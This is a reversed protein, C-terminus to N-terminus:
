STINIKKTQSDVTERRPINLRLVGDKMNAQIEDTNSDDPLSLTRRFSGYSREIRYFHRDKDEKEEQKEGQITLIDGSVEIVLDNETMGPAELTIEYSRNDSSVNLNPRFAQPSRFGSLDDQSSQLAPFGFGRFADDFLRDIQQHLQQVPGFLTQDSASMQQASAGRKVPIQNAPSVSSEEHKFWNWPNLKHLDM